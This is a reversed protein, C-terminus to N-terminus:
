GQRGVYDRGDLGILMGERYECRAVLFRKVREFYEARHPLKDRAPLTATLIALSVHRSAYEVGHMQLMSDIEAFKGALLAEDVADYIADDLATDSAMPVPRESPSPPASTAIKA